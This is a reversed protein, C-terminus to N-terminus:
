AQWVFGRVSACGPSKNNLQITAPTAIQQAKVEVEVKKKTIWEVWALDPCQLLLARLSPSTPM